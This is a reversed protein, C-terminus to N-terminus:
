GDLVITVPGDNVLAVEMRAGFVGELSASGRLRSRGASARTSRSPSSPGRLTPSARATARARTPSAAHVSEGRSGRRGCGPALPRVPRRREGFIRLRAVKGALREAHEVTDDAAVGLLVVLGADCSAVVREDVSVSAGRVRQVVARVHQNQRAYLDSAIRGIAAVHFRSRMRPRGEADQEHPVAEDRLVLELLDQGLLAVGPLLAHGPPSEALDQDLAPLTVGYCTAFSTASCYSSGNTSKSTSSMSRRAAVTMRSSSARLNQAIGILRPPSPDNRSAIASGAVTSKESSSRRTSPETGRKATTPGSAISRAIVKTYLWGRGDIASAGVCGSVASSRM